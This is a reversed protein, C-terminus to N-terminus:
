RIEIKPGESVSDETGFDAAATVDIKPSAVFQKYPEM